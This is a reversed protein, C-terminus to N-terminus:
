SEEENIIEKIKEYTKKPNEVAVIDIGYSGGSGATTFLIITGLNFFKQMITQKYLVERIEKYKIEREMLNMFSDNYIVKTKYFNYINKKYKGIKIIVTIIWPIFFFIASAILTVIITGELIGAVAMAIMVLPYWSSHYMLKYKSGVKFIIDNDDTKEEKINILNQGAGCKPCFKSSENVQSGCKQCFM